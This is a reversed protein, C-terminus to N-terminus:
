RQITITVVTGGDNQKDQIEIAYKTKNELMNINAVRSFTLATGLSTTQKKNKTIGAKIRGIGNDEVKCIVLNDTGTFSLLLKKEGDPKPMLGHWISNEVFPQILMPPIKISSIDIDPNINVEYTFDSSFRKAEIEIYIKLIEIEDELSIFKHKSNELIGRILSSFLELSNYADNQKGTLIAHQISNLANFIFHPNMQLRLAQQELDLLEKEYNIIKEQLTFKNKVKRFQKFIIV